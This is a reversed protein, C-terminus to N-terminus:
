IPETVNATAGSSPHPNSLSACQHKIARCGRVDGAVGAYTMGASEPQSREM